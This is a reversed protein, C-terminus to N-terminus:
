VAQNQETKLYYRFRIFQSDLVCIGSRLSPTKYVVLIVLINGIAAVLFIVVCLCLRVIRAGFPEAIAVSRTTNALTSYNDMISNQYALEESVSKYLTEFRDKATDNAFRVGSSYLSHHRASLSIRYGGAKIATSLHAM